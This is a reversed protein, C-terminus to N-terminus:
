ITYCTDQECQSATCRCNDYASNARKGRTVDVIIGIQLTAVAIGVRFRQSTENLAPIRDVRSIGLYPM